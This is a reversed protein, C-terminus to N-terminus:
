ADSLEVHVLIGAADVVQVTEGIRPERKTLLYTRTGTRTTIGLIRYGVLYFTPNARVLDSRVYIVCAVMLFIFYSIVDETSPSSVTIFPLLYSTLYGGVEAGLDDARAVTIAVPLTKTKARHVLLWATFVGFTFLAACTIQLWRTDFRVALILFLPAYSSVFLRIRAAAQTIEARSSRAPGTGSM